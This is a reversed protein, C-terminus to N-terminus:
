GIPIVSPVFGCVRPLRETFNAQILAFSLVLRLDSTDHEPEVSVGTACSEPQEM